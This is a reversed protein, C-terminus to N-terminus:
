RAAPARWDRFARELLPTIEALTTDGVVFIRANDPRLWQQQFEVLDARTLSQLSEETGSGTFPVGYAHGEGYLVPPLLRLALSAPEAKEQAIGAIRQRRQREIEEEDFSPNRIVDAWLEISETLYGLRPLAYATLEGLNWILGLVATALPLRSHGAGPVDRLVLALLMAYLATGTVFGVLNLVEAANPAIM